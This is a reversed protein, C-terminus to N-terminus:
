HGGVKLFGNSLLFLFVGVGMQLGAYTYTIRWIHKTMADMVIKLREELDTIADTLDLQFERRLLELDKLTAPYDGAGGGSFPPKNFRPPQAM